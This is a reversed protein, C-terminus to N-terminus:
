EREGWNALRRALRRGGLGHGSSRRAGRLDACTAGSGDENGHAEVMQCGGEVGWLGCFDGFGGAAVLDGSIAAGSARATGSSLLSSGTPWTPRPPLPSPTPGIDLEEGNM